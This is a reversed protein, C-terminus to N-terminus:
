SRLSIISVHRGYDAVGNHTARRYSFMTDQEAYTDALAPTISAVGDEKLRQVVYGPLDFHWKAEPTPKFFHADAAADVNLVTDHFGDGVEYNVGFITPGIAAHVRDVRAGIAEMAELTNALVGGVAGKWGAHAAGIVAAEPDVLLIPACDATLIGLAVGPTKSVLADAVPNATQPWPADALVVEATHQQYVTTLKSPDLGLTTMSADRNTQVAAPDDDAGFGCNNGAVAGKSVGGEATFFGHAVRDMDALRPCTLAPRTM